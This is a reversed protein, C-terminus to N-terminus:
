SFWGESSGVSMVWYLFSRVGLLSGWMHSIFSSWNWNRWPGRIMNTASYLRKIISLWCLFSSCCIIWKGKGISRVTSLYLDIRQHRYSILGWKLERHSIKPYVNSDYYDDDDTVHSMGHHVASFLNPVPLYFFPSGHFAKRRRISRRECSDILLRDFYKNKFGSIIILWSGKISMPTPFSTM